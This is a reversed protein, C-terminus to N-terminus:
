VRHLSARQRKLCTRLQTSLEVARDRIELHWAEALGLDSGLYAGEDSYRMRAVSERDFLWFDYAPRGFARVFDAEEILYIEEGHTANYSYGWEVEYNLYATRRTPLVRDVDRLHVGPLSAQVEEDRDVAGGLEGEGLQVLTRQPPDRRVEEARRDGRHRVGDVRHQGVAAELEEVARWEGRGIRGERGVALRRAPADMGDVVRALLEQDVVPHRLRVVRPRVPLDLPHVPRELVGGDVPVVVVRVVLEAHV